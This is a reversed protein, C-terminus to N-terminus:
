KAANISTILEKIIQVPDNHDNSIKRCVTNENGFIIYEEYFWLDYRYGTAGYRVWVMGNPLTTPYEDLPIPQANIMSLLFIETKRVDNVVIGYSSEVEGSENFSLPKSVTIFLSSEKSKDLLFINLAVSLALLISTCIILVRSKM